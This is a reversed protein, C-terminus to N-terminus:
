QQPLMVLLEENYKEVFDTSKGDISFKVIFYFCVQVVHHM